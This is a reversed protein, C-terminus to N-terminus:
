MSHSSSSHRVVQLHLVGRVHLLGRVGVLVHQREAPPLLRYVGILSLCFAVRMRYNPSHVDGIENARLRFLPSDPHVERIANVHNPLRLLDQQFEANGTINM